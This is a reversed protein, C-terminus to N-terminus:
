ESDKLLLFEKTSKRVAKEFEYINNFKGQPYIIARSIPVIVRGGEFYKGAELVEKLKGGQAGVGPSLIVIDKGVLDRVRKLDKPYTAGVVLGCNGYENWNKAVHLAIEEYLKRGSALELDQFEGAGPNSTKCLILFLKDKREWFPALSERGLFPHLTIADAGLYDFAFQVYGKNTSGIDGRKADLIITLDARRKKIYECIKKLEKIGESGRAEFFATNPKYGVIPLNFTADVVSKCFDFFPTKSKFFVEPLKEYVPDLGICLYM